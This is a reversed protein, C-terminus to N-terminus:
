RVLKYGGSTGDAMEKMYKGSKPDRLAITYVKTRHRAAWRLVKKVVSEENKAQPAGDTMFYIVDPAPRMDFAM